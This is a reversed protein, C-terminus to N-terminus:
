EETANLELPPKNAVASLGGSSSFAVSSPASSAGTNVPSGVPTLTGDSGVSFMSIANDHVDATALLTGDPNFTVSEPDGGTPFPSGTIETLVGGTGVTFPCQTTATPPRWCGGM